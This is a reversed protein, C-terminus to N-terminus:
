QTDASQPEAVGRSGQNGDQQSDGEGESDEMPEPPKPAEISVKALGPVKTDYRVKKGNKSVLVDSPKDTTIEIRETVTFEQSFPGVEQAALVSKGDLKVEIWAVADKQKLSVRVKTPKPKAPEEGDAGATGTDDVKSSDADDPSDDVPGGEGDVPEEDVSDDDDDKSSSSPSSSGVPEEKPAPAQPTPAPKPTCGRVVLFGLVVIVLMGIAGILLLIRPDYSPQSAPRRGGNGGRGSRNDRYQSARQMRDQSYGDRPRPQVPHQRRSPGDVRRAASQGQRPVAGRARQGSPRAARVRESDVPRLQTASVPEHLSSSESVYGAQQPRSAFRSSPSPTNVMLFRGADNSSRPYVDAVSDQYRGAGHGETSREFQYLSDFYADVVERPNLGLYRAYSSIMGQAYGRPPMHPFDENEFYEIIQPRIKITNAVQQISLGLHRRRSLLMEGFHASM